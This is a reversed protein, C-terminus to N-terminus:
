TMSAVALAMAFAILILHWPNLKALESVWAHVFAAKARAVDQFEARDARRIVEAIDNAIKRTELDGSYDCEDRLYQFILGRRFEHLDRDDRM